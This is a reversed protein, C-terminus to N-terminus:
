CTPSQIRQDPNSERYVRIKKKFYIFLYIFLYVKKRKTKMEFDLSIDFLDSLDYCVM